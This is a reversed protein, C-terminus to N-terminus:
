SMTEEAVRNLRELAWIGPDRNAPDLQGTVSASILSARYERLGDISQRVLRSLRRFREGETDLQSCIEVQERFSPLPIKFARIDPMYITQHTSGMMLRRFQPKMARLTYYLFKPLLTPGCIWAAFDQTTAMPASLIAPFGVSATRSLIVTDKPLLRAPSNAMGIESIKEHTDNIFVVSGDRLKWVDALSVWPIVCEKPVWYAEVKRSPTHGSEQRAVHVLKPVQWHSPMKGIWEVGSEMKTEPRTMGTVCSLYTEEQKERIVELLRMKKKILQDVRNTERLLFRSTARQAELDPVPIQVNKMTGLSLGYRTVGSAANSFQDRVRTSLLAWYLFDGSIRRTNPRLITLHYGCVIDNSTSRVLAPVGIDLRDESDKTVVVDGVKLRFREIEDKCASGQSFEMDAEIFDNKYVDVYNCLRVQSEEVSVIKDVNSNRVTALHRLKM